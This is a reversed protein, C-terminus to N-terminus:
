LKELRTWDADKEIDRTTVVSFRGDGYSECRYSRYGPEQVRVVAVRAPFLSQPQRKMRAAIDADAHALSAMSVGRGPTVYARQCGEITIIAVACTVLMSVRYTKKPNQFYGFM